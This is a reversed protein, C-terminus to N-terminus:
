SASPTSTRSACRSCSRRASAPSSRRSSSRGTARTSRTSCGAPKRPRSGAVSGASERPSCGLTPRISARASRPTSRSATSACRTASCRRSAASRATSRRRPCAARSCRPTSTTCTSARSRTSRVIRAAPCTRTSTSGSATRHTKVTRPDRGVRAPWISMWEGLTLGGEPVVGKNLEAVRDEAARRAAAQTAHVGVQRKLNDGDRYTARWGTVKGKANRVAVPAITRAVGVAPAPRGRRETM